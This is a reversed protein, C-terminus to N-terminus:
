DLFCQRPPRLRRLTFYGLIPNGLMPDETKLPPIEESLTMEVSVRSQLLLRSVASLSSRYRQLYWPGLKKSHRPLATQWHEATWSDTTFINRGQRNNRLPCPLRLPAKTELPLTTKGHLVSHSIKRSLDLPGSLSLLTWFRLTGISALEGMVLVCWWCLLVERRESGM